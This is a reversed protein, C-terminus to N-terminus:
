ANLVPAADTARLRDRIKMLTECFQRNPLSGQGPKGAMRGLKHVLTLDGTALLAAKADESQSFKAELGRILLVRHADSGFSLAEGKWCVMGTWPAKRGSVKAALGSMGFTKERGPDGEQYKIGQLLGEISALKVGDLEFPAKAFNSLKKSREDKARSHINLEQENANM